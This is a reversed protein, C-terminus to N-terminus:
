GRLRVPIQVGSQGQEGGLVLEQAWGEMAGLGWADGGGPAIGQMHGLQKPSWGQQRRGATLWQQGGGDQRGTEGTMKSLPAGEWSDGEGQYRRESKSGERGLEGWM